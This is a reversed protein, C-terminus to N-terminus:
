ENSAALGRWSCSYWTHSVSLSGSPLISIGPTIVWALLM